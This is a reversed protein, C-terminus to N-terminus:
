RVVSLLMRFCHLSYYAGTEFDGAAFLWLTCGDPSAFKNVICPNYWGEPDFDQTHFLTWPGWPRPSQYFDWRSRQWSIPLEYPELHTYHWQPMIYLGLPEIYQVGTMSTAGPARFTYLATEQRAGWIPLKDDDYGNVFEWDEGRLRSLQDRRVRGLTMTSGNNWVGDSSTAYVYTNAEDAEGHGNQGHQVFFPSGFTHGRFMPDALPEGTRTPRPTWSKGYDESKLISADWTQQIPFNANMYHHRSVSLYLVGDICTMGNAKWSARDVGLQANAGFESMANVTTGTLRQPTKGELRHIALNSNCAQDFGTTDDSVSYLAGDGGWTTSWVDGTNKGTIPIGPDLHAEVIRAPEPPASDVRTM